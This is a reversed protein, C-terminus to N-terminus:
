YRNLIDLYEQRYPNEELGGDLNYIRKIFYEKSINCQCGVSFLPEKNPEHLIYIDRHFYM